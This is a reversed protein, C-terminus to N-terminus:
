GIEPGAIAYCWDTRALTLPAGRVMRIFPRRPEFGFDAALASAHIDRDPTDLIVPRGALPALACRLLRRASVPDRAVLPGIYWARAGPRSCVYGAVAGDAGEQLWCGTPHAAVLDRLVRRRDAGFFVAADLEVLREVAQTSLPRLGPDAIPTGFTPARAERRQLTYLDAFGMGDYLTKGLPTADLAVSLVSNRELWQLAHTLLARGLGRRRSEQDVLLMGVWALRRAGGYVTTTVTGVVQRDPREAIFCGAPEWRLLRQWDEPTQNWGAQERLRNAAPIDAAIM